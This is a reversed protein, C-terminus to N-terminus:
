IQISSTYDELAKGDCNARTYLLGRNYYLAANRPGELIENAIEQIEEV